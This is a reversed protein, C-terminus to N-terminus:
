INKDKKILGNTTLIYLLGTADSAGEFWINSKKILDFDLYDLIEYLYDGGRALLILKDISKQANKILDSNKVNLLTILLVILKLKM